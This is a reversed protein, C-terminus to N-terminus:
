PKPGPRGLIVLGPPHAIGDARERQSPVMALGRAILARGPSAAGPITRVVTWGQGRMEELLGPRRGPSFAFFDSESTSAQSTEPLNALLHVLSGRGQDTACLFKPSRSLGIVWRAGVYEFPELATNSAYPLAVFARHPALVASGQDLGAAFLGSCILIASLLLRWRPSLRGLAYALLIVSPVTLSAAYRPDRQLPVWRTPVTTGYFTWLFGVALWIALPRVAPWRWFAFPALALSAAHYLGFEQNTVILLLPDTWFGGGSTARKVLALNRPDRQQALIAGWRYTASGATAAYLGCELSLVLAPAFFVWPLKPRAFRGAWLWLALYIPGDMVVTERCLYGVAFFAGSAVYDRRRDDRLGRIWYWLSLTSFLAVVVDPFLHTSYIIELPFAAQFCAALWATRRDTLDSAVAFCAVISTLSALLPWLVFAIPRPGLCKISVATPLIVALRTHWHYPEPPWQGDHAIVLAQTSYFVDDGLAMGTFYALRVALGCAVLACLWFGTAYRPPGSPSLEARKAGIDSIAGEM